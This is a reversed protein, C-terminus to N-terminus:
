RKPAPGPAQLLEAMTNLSDVMMDTEVGIAPDAALAAHDQRLPALPGPPLGSRVADTVRAFATDVDDVFQKAGPVAHAQGDELGAHVALAALAHRRLAALLAIARKRGISAQAAPEANMREVLAETNSRQLRAASRLQALRELSLATPDVYASLLAGVYVRHADLLAAISARASRGAWTPWVLYVVIALVGGEVTYAIRAWAATMEAIGSLRLVFVVYATLCVTFLAYNVRFLSYCGWVAALLLASLVAAAPHFLHIIATAIGAGLLTGAIRAVGRAFTEYFDPRLVILATMPIWYGRAYHFVHYVVSAIAVAVALRIAHRFAASDLTLNAKLTTLGDGIPPLYRFAPATALRQASDIKGGPAKPRAPPESLVGATRWAARLQGLLADISAMGPLEQVCADLAAWAARDDRPTRGDSLADGIEDLLTGVSTALQATCAPHTETLGQRRVALGALSARIREAEDLLAQFVLIHAASGLPHPDEVPALTSALTHPEPATIDGKGISRAYAALSVYVPATAKREASFRRLPWVGVVLFTQALGGFLVVAARLAADHASSPFGEAIMMAVGCQLAVFSAAAGLAVFYGAGFAFVAALVVAAVPNGASIAGLLWALAMGISACIMVAARSRYAGQFSGFGVSVAGIVGFAGIWPQGLLLGVALPVAVGATCRVAAAPELQAWDFVVSPRVIDRVAM